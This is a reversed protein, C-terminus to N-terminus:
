FVRASGTPEDQTLAASAELFNMEHHAVALSRAQLPAIMGSLRPSRLARELETM